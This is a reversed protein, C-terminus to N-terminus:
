RLFIFHVCEFNNCLIRKLCAVLDGLDLDTVGYLNGNLDALALSPTNLSEISRNKGALTRANGLGEGNASNGITDADLSDERYM